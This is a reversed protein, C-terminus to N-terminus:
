PVRREPIHYNVLIQQNDVRLTVAGRHHTSVIRCGIRHLRDIVDQAGDMGNEAIPIIAIQPAVHELFDEKTATKSAHHSVKLVQAPYAAYKEYEGSLDGTTLLSVGDLNWLLSMSMDNAQLGPYTKDPIPWVVRATVRGSSLTEQAGAFRIPIGMAEAQEILQYADGVDTANRANQALLIAKIPVKMALLERLGGAHDTHLHTIILTDITRGKSLLYHALDGGYEGTDIVYTTKGDEVVAADASGLSFQTYSVQPQVLLYYLAAASIISMFMLPVRRRWALLTYRSLLLLVLYLTIAWFWSIAPLQVVAHPLGAFYATADIFFATMHNIPIALIHAAPMWVAAVLIAALYAPMLVGIYAIALPGIVLSIMSFQHFVNVVPVLTFLTASITTGYALALLRVLRYKAFPSKRILSSIQDGTIIIGLVALFSLQFGVNFLDLPRFVLIIIFAAALSTLTDRQRRIMRGYLLILTMVAARMVSATFNLFRCYMLLVAFIIWFRTKPKVGIRLLIAHFIGMLLSVHLGSIALIHPIGADRFDATVEEKIDARDGILLAKPLASNQGFLYDLQESAWIKARLWGSAHETQMPIDTDRDRLGSIGVDIGKQRLYMRFDFGYPNVQAEPHYVRGTFRVHQGDMPVFSDQGPYFTWYARSIQHVTGHEDKAKIDRLVTRVRGDELRVDAEGAAVGEMLMIGEPLLAPHNALAGHLMGLFLVMSCVGLVILQRQKRLFILLLISFLIGSAVLVYNPERWVAGLLIGGGFFLAACVLPRQVLMSRNNM